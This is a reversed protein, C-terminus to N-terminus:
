LWKFIEAFTKRTHKQSTNNSYGFCIASVVPFESYKKLFQYAYLVDGCWLSSIGLSQARILMNEISAGISMLELAEVDKAAISWDVTDDHIVATDNKYCALLLVSCQEIAKLTDLAQLIDERDQKVSYLEMVENRMHEVFRM